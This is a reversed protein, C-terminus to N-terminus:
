WNTAGNITVCTGKKVCWFTYTKGKSVQAVVHSSTYPNARCNVKSSGGVIQCYQPRSIARADLAEDALETEPEAEAIPNAMLGLPLLAAVFLTKLQM